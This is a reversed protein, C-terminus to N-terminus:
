ERWSFENFGNSKIKLKQKKKSKKWNDTEDQSDMKLYSILWDLSGTLWSSHMNWSTEDTQLTEQSESKESDWWHKKKPFLVDLVEKGYDKGRPRIYNAFLLENTLFLFIKAKVENTNLGEGWWTSDFVKSLVYKAVIDIDHWMEPLLHISEQPISIWEHELVVKITNAEWLVEGTSTQNIEKELLNLHDKAQGIFEKTYEYKKDRSVANDSSLIDSM